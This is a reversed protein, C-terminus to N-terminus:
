RSSARRARPAPPMSRPRLAPSIAPAGRLCERSREVGESRMRFLRRLRRKSPHGSPGSEHGDKSVGTKAPEGPRPKHSCTARMLAVDRSVGEGMQQGASQMRRRRDLPPAGCPAYQRRAAVRGIVRFGGDRWGLLGGHACAVVVITRLELQMALLEEVIEVGFSAAEELACEHRATPGRCQRRAAASQDLGGRRLRPRPLRSIVIEGGGGVGHM